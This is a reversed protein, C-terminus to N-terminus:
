GEETHREPSRTAARDVSVTGVHQSVPGGCEGGTPLMWTCRWGFPASDYVTGCSLCRFVGIEGM